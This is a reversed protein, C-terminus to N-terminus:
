GLFSATKMFSIGAHYNSHKKKLSMTKKAFPAPRSNILKPLKNITDDSAAPPANQVNAQQLLNQILQDEPNHIINVFETPILHRLLPHPQSQANSGNMGHMYGFLDMSQLTRPDGYLATRVTGFNNTLIIPSGERRFIQMNIGRSEGLHQNETEMIVARMLAPFIDNANMITVSDLPTRHDMHPSNPTLETRRQSVDSVEEVFNHGSQSLFETGLLGKLREPGM